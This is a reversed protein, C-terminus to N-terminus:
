LLVFIYNIEKAYYVTFVTVTICGLCEYVTLLKQHDVSM